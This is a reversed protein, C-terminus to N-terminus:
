QIIDQIARVSVSQSEIRIITNYFHTAQRTAKGSHYSQTFDIINKCNRPNGLLQKLICHSLLTRSVAFIAMVIKGFADSHINDKCCNTCTKDSQCLQGCDLYLRDLNRKFQMNEVITDCNIFTTDKIQPTAASDVFQKHMQPLLVHPGDVRQRKKCLGVTMMVITQIDKCNLRDQNLDGLIDCDLQLGPLRFV